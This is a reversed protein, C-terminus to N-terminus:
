EVRKPESLDPEIPLWPRAAARAYRSALERNSREHDRYNRAVRELDALRQRSAPDSRSRPMVMMSEVKSADDSWSKAEASYAAAMLSRERWNRRMKEATLLTAVVAVVVMLWRITFRPRPLRM